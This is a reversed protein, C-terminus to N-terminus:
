ALKIQMVTAISLARTKIKEANEGFFLDDVTQNFYNLWLLFHESTLKVKENLDQHIKLVNNKYGGSNFITQEWFDVIIPLHTEINIRAVDTFIYNISDDKLLKDYFSDMIIELDQRTQLDKMNQM